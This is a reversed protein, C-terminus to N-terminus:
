DSQPSPSERKPLAVGFWGRRRFYYVMLAAFWGASLVVAVLTAPGGAEKAAAVQLVVSLIGCLSLWVIAATFGWPRRLWHGLSQVIGAAAAAFALIDLVTGFPGHLPQDNLGGASPLGGISCIPLLVGWFLGTGAVAIFLPPMPRLRRPLWQELMLFPWAFVTGDVGPPRAKEESPDILFPLRTSM